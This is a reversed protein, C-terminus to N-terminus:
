KVETQKANHEIFEGKYSDEGAGSKTWSDQNKRILLYIGVGAAAIVLILLIIWGANSGSNLDTECLEGEYGKRCVCKGNVCAGGNLCKAM